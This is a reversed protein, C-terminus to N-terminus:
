ATENFKLNIEQQLKIVLTRCLAQGYFMSLDTLWVEVQKFNVKVTVSM